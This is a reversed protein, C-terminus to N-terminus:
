IFMGMLEIELKDKDTIKEDDRTIESVEVNLAARFSIEYKEKEHEGSYTATFTFINYSWSGSEFYSDVAEGYNKQSLKMDMDFEHTSHRIRFVQVAFIIFYVAAIVAALKLLKLFIKFRSRKRKGHEQIKASCPRAEHRVNAAAEQEREHQRNRRRDADNQRQPQEDTRRKESAVVRGCNPCIKMKDDLRAHCAHCIRSM